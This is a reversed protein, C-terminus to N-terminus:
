ENVITLGAQLFHHDNTLVHHIGRDKMVVMSLCDTLSYEKDPRAAYLDLARIFLSRDPTIVDMSVIADRVDDVAQARAQSGEEGFYALVEFFVAQHTVLHARAIRQMLRMAQQHHSDHRDSLAIFLWADAFYRERM